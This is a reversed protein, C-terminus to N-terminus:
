ELSSHSIKKNIYGIIDGVTKIQNEEEDTIEIDFEDELIIILEMFDFSTMGLDNIFCHKSSIDQVFLRESVIDKIRREVDM